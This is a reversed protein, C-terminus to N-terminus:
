TKRRQSSPGVSQVWFNEDGRDAPTFEKGFWVERPIKINIARSPCSNRIDNATKLAEARLSESPWLPPGFRLFLNPYHTMMHQKFTLPRRTLERYLSHHEEILTKLLDVCERQLSPAFILDTCERFLLFLEWIRNNRPIFEGIILPLYRIIVLMESASLSLSDDTFVDAFDPPKNRCDVGFDFYAVKLYLEQLTFYGADKLSHLVFIIDLGAAGELVDHMADGACNTTLHFNEVRNWVCRTKVGTSSYDDKQLDEEYNEINRYATPDDWCLIQIESLKLRCIRCPYNAVFSEVLGLMQNYGLNDAVLLSVVFFLHKVEGQVEVQIGTNSLFNLENIFEEFTVDNGCVKRYKGQFLQCLFISNLSSQIRPRLCPVQAYIASLKYRLIAVESYRSADDPMEKIKGGKKLEEEFMSQLTFKDKLPPKNEPMKKKQFLYSLALLQANAPKQTSTSANQTMDELLKKLYEKVNEEMTLNKVAAERLGGSTPNSLPICKTRAHSSSPTVLTSRSTQM